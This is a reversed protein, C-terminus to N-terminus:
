LRPFARSRAVCAGDSGRRGKRELPAYTRGRWRARNRFAVGAESLPQPETTWDPTHSADCAATM